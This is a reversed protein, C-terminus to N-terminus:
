EVRADRELPVFQFCMDLWIRRDECGRFRAKVWLPFKEAGWEVIRGLGLPSHLFPLPLCRTDCDAIHCSNLFETVTKFKYHQGIADYVHISHGIHLAGFPNSLVTYERAAGYPLLKATIKM